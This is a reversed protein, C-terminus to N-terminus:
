NPAPRGEGRAANLTKVGNVDHVGATYGEWFTGVKASVQEVQADLAGVAGIVDGQGARVLHLAGFIATVITATSALTLVGRSFASPFGDYAEAAIAAIAFAWLIGAVFGSVITLRLPRPLSARTSGSGAESV